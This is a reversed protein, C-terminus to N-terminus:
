QLIFQLVNTMVADPGSLLDETAVGWNQQLVRSYSQASSFLEFGVRMDVRMKALNKMFTTSASRPSSWVVVTSETFSTFALLLM